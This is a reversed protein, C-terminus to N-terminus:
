SNANIHDPGSTRVRDESYGRLAYYYWRAICGGLSHANVASLEHGACRAYHTQFVFAWESLIWVTRDQSENGQYLDSSFVFRM